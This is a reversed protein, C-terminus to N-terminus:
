SDFSTDDMPNEDSVSIEKVIFENGTVLFTEGSSCHPCTRGFEVTDYDQGCNNCHTVAHITEIILEAGKLLNERNAAWNWCDALQDHIVGTVEGIEVTVSDIRQVDNEIAVKKVHDIVYFVVGLEHM